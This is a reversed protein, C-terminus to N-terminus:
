WPVENTEMFKAVEDKTVEKGGRSDLSIKNLRSAISGYEAASVNDPIGKFTEKFISTGRYYNDFDSQSWGGEFKPRFWSFNVGMQDPTFGTMDLTMQHFRDKLAGLQVPTMGQAGGGRGGLGLTKLNFRTATLNGSTDTTKRQGPLIAYSGSQRYIGYKGIQDLETNSLSTDGLPGFSPGFFPIGSASAYFKNDTEAPDDRIGEIGSLIEQIPDVTPGNNGDPSGGFMANGVGKLWNGFGDAYGM